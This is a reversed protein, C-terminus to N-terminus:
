LITTPKSFRYFLDFTFYTKIGRWRLPAVYDRPPDEDSNPFSGNSDPNFPNVPYESYSFLGDQLDQVDQLDQNLCFYQAFGM